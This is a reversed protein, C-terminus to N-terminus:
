AQLASVFTITGLASPVSPHAYPTTQAPEFAIYVGDVPGTPNYAVDTAWWLEVYDDANMEYTVHSYALLYSPAGTSKRAPLSFKSGSGVVDVGNVRLWVTVDHSANATNILQLSYDIKYVGSQEAYAAGGSLTFGNVTGNNWAVKTPTNNGGAYQDTTDYATIFPTNLYKGGLNGFLAALNQQLRNFFLRLVNDHVELHSRSYTDPPMPISPASPAQLRKIEAM